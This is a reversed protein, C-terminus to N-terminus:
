DHAGVVRVLGDEVFFDECDATLLEEIRDGRRPPIEFTAYGLDMAVEPMYRIEGPDPSYRGPKRTAASLLAAVAEEMTVFYRSCDTVPVPGDMGAWKEFVNGYAPVVNYLRVVTGGQNLVVREALLKTAGYATEPHIAKCTSTLVFGAMGRDRYVNYTGQVNVLTTAVPVQEGEPAYKQAALHFVMDPKLGIMMASVTNGDTVDLYDVPFWDSGTIDTPWVKAGLVTLLPCLTEGVSGAAGTVLVRKGVFARHDYEAPKPERGLIIAQQEPTM